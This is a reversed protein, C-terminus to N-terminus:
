EKTAALKELKEVIYPNEIYTSQISGDRNGEAAIQDRAWKWDITALVNDEEDVVDVPGFFHNFSLSDELAHSDPHLSGKPEYGYGGASVVKEGGGYSVSGEIVFFELGGGRHYHRAVYAGKKLRLMQTWEGTKEDYSFVRHRVGPMGEVWGEESHEVILDTAM